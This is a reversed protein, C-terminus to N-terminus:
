AGHVVRLSTTHVWLLLLAPAHGAPHLWVPTLLLVTAVGFVWLLVYSGSGSGM